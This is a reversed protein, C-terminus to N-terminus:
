SPKRHEAFGRHSEQTRTQMNSPNWSAWVRLFWNILERECGLSLREYIRKRYTKVTAESVCLDAAIGAASIGYLIRSCVELQRQPLGSCDALCREISQLCSLPVAEKASMCDADIHKRLIAALAGGVEALRQMLESVEKWLLDGPFIVGIAAQWPGDAFHIWHPSGQMLENGNMVEGITEHFFVAAGDPGVLAGLFRKLADQFELTGVADLLPSWNATVIQSAPQPGTRSM